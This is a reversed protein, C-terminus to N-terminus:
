SIHTVFVRACTGDSTDADADTDRDSKGFGVGVFISLAAELEALEMGFPMEDACSDNYSRCARLLHERAVQPYHPALAAVLDDVTKVDAGLLQLAIPELEDVLAPDRDMADLLAAAAFVVARVRSGDPEDDLWEYLKAAAKARFLIGVFEWNDVNSAVYTAHSPATLAYRSGTVDLPAAARPCIVAHGTSAYDVDRVVEWSSANWFADPSRYLLLALWHKPAAILDSQMPYSADQPAQTGGGIATAALAAFIDAAPGPM